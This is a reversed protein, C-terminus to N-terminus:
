HVQSHPWIYDELDIISLQCFLSTGDNMMGFVGNPLMYFNGEGAKRDLPRHETDEEIHLGISEGDPHFMGGNMVVM